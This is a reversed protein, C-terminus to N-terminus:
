RTKQRRQHMWNRDVHVNKKQQTYSDIAIAYYCLDNNITETPKKDIFLNINLIQWLLRNALTLCKIQAYCRHQINIKVTCNQLLESTNIRFFFCTYSEDTNAYGDITCTCPRTVVTKPKCMCNSLECKSSPKIRTFHKVLTDGSIDICLLLVLESPFAASALSLLKLLAYLPFLLFVFQECRFGGNASLRSTKKIPLHMM